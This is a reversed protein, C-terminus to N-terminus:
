TASGTGLKTEWETKLIISDDTKAFLIQKCARNQRVCAM